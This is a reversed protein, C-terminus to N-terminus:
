YESAKLLTNILLHRIDMPLKNTGDYLYHQLALHAFIGTDKAFNEYQAEFPIAIELCEENLTLLLKRGTPCISLSPKTYYRSPESPVITANVLQSTKINWYRLFQAPKSFTILIKSNPHIAINALSNGSTTQYPESVLMTDKFPNLNTIIIKEKTGRAIFFGDPSYECFSHYQQQQLNCDIKTTESTELNFIYLNKWALCM